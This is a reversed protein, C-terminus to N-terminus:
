GDLRSVQLSLRTAGADFAARLVEEVLSIVAERDGDVSTGFPGVEVTSSAAAVRQAVDLAAIVHPGPTNEAFPEVTFEVKLRDNM